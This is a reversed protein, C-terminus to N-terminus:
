NEICRKKKSREAFLRFCSLLKGIAIFHRVLIGIRTVSRLEEAESEALLRAREQAEEELIQELSKDNKHEGMIWM